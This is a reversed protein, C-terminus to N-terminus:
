YPKRLSRIHQHLCHQQTNVDNCAIFEDWAILSVKSDVIVKRDDPYYIIIDPQLGKGWEDKIINGANDKLFEQVKYERGKTLGSNELLNELIMEGWNGQMKVNGKLATTLNNAEQSVQRSMEILRQVERGLSFREKSERDYTEEVKQKFEGLQLKLPSLIADIKEENLETFRQSKEELITQALHKFEYRFHNGLDEMEGKQTALKEEASQLSRKSCQWNSIYYKMKKRIVSEPM